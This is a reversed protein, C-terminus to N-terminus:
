FEAISGFLRALWRGIVEGLYWTALLQIAGFTLCLMLAVTYLQFRDFNLRYWRMAALIKKM